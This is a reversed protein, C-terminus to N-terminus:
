RGNRGGTPLRVILETCALAGDFGGYRRSPAFAHCPFYVSSRLVSVPPQSRSWRTAGPTFFAVPAIVSFIVGLLAHLVAWGTTSAALAFERVGRLDRRLRVARRSRDGPAALMTAFTPVESWTSLEDGVM